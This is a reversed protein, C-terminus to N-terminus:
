NFNYETIIKEREESQDKFFEYFSLGLFGGTVNIVNTYGLNQLALAANYSRQGTRCHIYVPEDKPIEMIRERLESLPVLHAGKIHGREYEGKERVDVFYAKEELLTRVKDVTIQKFRGELVNCAIYGAYNIIDKATGFPPAYCLELEKLDYVTAGLKIATAIVDIRKDVNGKGIAQAGLIKGSPKEFILKFHMPHSDPMLGVKDGLIFHVKDYNLNRKQEKIFQETLGTAAGNYEFVKIASSGIYAAQQIEEGNIHSAVARAAKQAPGALTLRMKEGTLLHNVEIADGIAYIDPDNTQYSDNVKISGNASLEIDADQAIKSEPKVGVAMVIMQTSISEGNSLVIKDKKICEMKHNLLLRIGHDHLVKHFIQVMEDDFTRLIQPASEILTVEYGAERINEAVEIGIYGGGVITVQKLQSEEMYAKIKSIDVVNRVTFVPLNEIGPIALKNPKAGPSLILKDYSEEYTENTLLNLVKIVKRARDIHVVEQNVRAEIAYQKMFKEPNMLVLRQAPEIMGSLHYPLACNSFSVHPGKEFMIIKDEESFRRLKAAASAGGAVGGIILIKMKM